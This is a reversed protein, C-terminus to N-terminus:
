VKRKMTHQTVVLLLHKGPECFGPLLLPADHHLHRCTRPFRVQHRLPYPLAYNMICLAYNVIFLAYNMICLAYNVIFLAYNVVFLAYNM